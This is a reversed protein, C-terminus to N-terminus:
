KIACKTLKSQGIGFIKNFEMRNYYDKIEFIKLDFPYFCYLQHLMVFCYGIKVSQDHPSFTIVTNIIDNKDISNNNNINMIISTFLDKSCDILNILVSCFGDFKEGQLWHINKVNIVFNFIEDSALSLNNDNIIIKLAILIKNKLYNILKTNLTMLCILYFNNIKHYVNNQSYHLVYLLFKLQKKNALYNTKNILTSFYVLDSKYENINIYINIDLRYRGTNKFSYRHYWYLSLQVKKNMNLFYKKNSYNSDVLVDFLDDFTVKKFYKKIKEITTNQSINSNELEKKDINDDINIGQRCFIELCLKYSLYANNEIVDLVNLYSFNLNIKFIKAIKFINYFNISLDYHYGRSLIFRFDYMSNCYNSSQSIKYEYDYMEGYIKVLIKLHTDHNHKNYPKITENDCTFYINNTKM